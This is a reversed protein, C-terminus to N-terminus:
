YVSLIVFLIFSIFVYVVYPNSIDDASMTPSIKGLFIVQFSSLLHIKSIFLSANLICM